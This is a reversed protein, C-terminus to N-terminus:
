VPHATSGLSKYTKYMGPPAPTRGDATHRCSKFFVEPLYSVKVDIGWRVVEKTMDRCRRLVKVNKDTAQQFLRIIRVDITGQHSSTRTLNYRGWVVLFGLIYSNPLSIGKLTKPFKSFFSRSNWPYKGRRLAVVGPILGKNISYAFITEIKRNNEGKKNHFDLNLKILWWSIPFPEVFTARTNELFFGLCGTGGFSLVEAIVLCWFGFCVPFSSVHKVEPSVPPMLHSGHQPSWVISIYPLKWPFERVITCPKSQYYLHGRHTWTWHMRVLQIQKLHKKQRNRGNFIM